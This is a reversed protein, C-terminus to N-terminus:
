KQVELYEKDKEVGSYPGQKVEIIKSDELMKFGHGGAILLITDDKNLINSLVKVGTGDYFDVGVKGYQIHLVEQVADITRTSPKHTHPRIEVGKRHKFIGLQLPNDESTFFNAGDGEFENRIILALLKGDQEIREIM